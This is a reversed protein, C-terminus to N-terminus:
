EVGRTPDTLPLPGATPPTSDFGVIGITLLLAAARLKVPFESKNAEKTSPLGNVELVKAKALAVSAPNVVATTISSFKTTPSDSGIFAGSAIAVTSALIGAEFASALTAAKNDTLASKFADKGFTFTMAGAGGAKLLGSTTLKSTLQGDIFNALNDKWASDKM